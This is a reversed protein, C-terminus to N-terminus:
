AGRIRREGDTTKAQQIRQSAAQSWDLPSTEERQGSTLPSIASALPAMLRELNARAPSTGFTSPPPNLSPSRWTLMPAPRGLRGCTFSWNDSPSYLCFLRRRLRQAPMQQYIYSIGSVEASIVASAIDAAAAKRGRRMGSWLYIFNYVSWIPESHRRPLLVSLSFHSRQSWRPRQFAKWRYTKMTESLWFRTIEICEFCFISTCTEDHNHNDSSMCQQYCSAM